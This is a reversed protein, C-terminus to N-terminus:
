KIEFAGIWFRLALWRLALFTGVSAVVGYALYSKTQSPSIGVLERVFQLLPHTPWFRDLCWGACALVTIGLLANSVGKIVKSLNALVSHFSSEIIDEPQALSALADLLEPVRPAYTALLRSLPLSEVDLLGRIVELQQRLTYNEFYLRLEITVDVAESLQTIVSDLVLFARYYASVGSRLSLGCERAARFNQLLLRGASRKAFSLGPQNVSLVWGRVNREFRRRFEGLSADPPVNLMRTIAKFAEEINGAQIALLLKLQTQREQDRLMGVLGFDILGVRGDPLLCINGVHPDAHFFGEEFMQQMM